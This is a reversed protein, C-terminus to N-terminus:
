TAELVVFSHRPVTLDLGRLPTSQAHASNLLLKWRRRGQSPSLSVQAGRANPNFAYLVRREGAEISIGLLSHDTSAVDADEAGDAGDASPPSSHKLRVESFVPSFKETADFLELLTARLRFVKRTYELFKEQDPDLDWDIWTTANDQCYANNNGSQSRGLEDGHLLMPIGASLALSGMLARKIRHRIEFVEPDDAPGEVGWNRSLNHDWGDRNDERNDLNHKEQYSVQDALTFGDHCAIFNISSRPGRSPPKFLSPSGAFADVVAAPNQPDGRWLSRLTDRYRDNWEAWTSPFEGLRYGAPGLDWPEAIWKLGCLSPDRRIREFVPASNSFGDPTRGVSTALDLRFGDVRMEEAWYRLCDVVLEVVTPHDLNLSNGCGTFDLYSGQNEPDLRYYTSNDIGRLSLLPGNEDGEATHNLVIDLIVEIGACHYKRVMQKFEDVQAGKSATAYGGQPAFLGIPSYGFYNTLGHRTLHPESAIQQVPLLEIATVGLSLLHEIVSDHALGLYTGQLKEPVLPHQITMGRVHCEYIVTHTWPTLPRADNSWDFSPDVVVCKPADQNTPLAEGAVAQHGQRLRLVGPDATIAKAYPDILFRSPDFRHQNTSDTPGDVRFSYLSGPKANDVFTQWVSGHIKQLPICTSPTDDAPDRFLCLEIFTANDSYLRFEM